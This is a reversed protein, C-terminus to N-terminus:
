SYIGVLRGYSRAVESHPDARRTLGFALAALRASRFLFSNSLKGVESNLVRIMFLLSNERTTVRAIRLVSGKGSLAGAGVRWLGRAGPRPVPRRRGVRVAGAHAMGPRTADGDTTAPGAGAAAPPSRAPARVPRAHATRRLVGM